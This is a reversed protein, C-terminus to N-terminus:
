KRLYAIGIGSFILVILAIVAFIIYEGSALASGGYAFIIAFPTVGIITSLVYRTFSINSFFGLAYSLVDVPLIMRFLVIGLFEMDKPIKNEYKEIKKFLGFRSFISENFYRAILFAIIAGVSWGIINYVSALVPGFIGGSIFFLPMTVPAVVVSIVLLLIYSFVGVFSGIEIYRQLLSLIDGIFFLPAIIIIFLLIAYVINSKKYNKSM